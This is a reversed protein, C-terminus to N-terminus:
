AGDEDHLSDDSAHELNGGQAAARRIAQQIEADFQRRQRLRSSDETGMRSDVAQGRMRPLSEGSRAKDIGGSTEGRPAQNEQKQPPPPDGRDCATLLTCCSLLAALRAYRYIM